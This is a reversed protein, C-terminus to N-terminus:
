HKLLLNRAQWILRFAFYLLAIGLVQLIRQYVKGQIFRMSKATLFVLVLKAGVLCFYFIAIFLIAALNYKEWAAASIPAGVFIWFLYPHPSLINVLFGRGYSAFKTREANLDRVDVKTRFTEWALYILFLAGSFSVMISLFDIKKVQQFFLIALFVIPLDTLFPAIAVRLGAAKGYQVTERIALAFLPGPSFGSVLGLLVGRAAYEAITHLEQTSM